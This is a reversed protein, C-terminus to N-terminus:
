RPTWISFAHCHLAHIEISFYVGLSNAAGTAAINCMSYSYVKDMIASEMDWDKPSDQVICLSDIWIYRCQLTRAVKVADRFTPPLSQIPIGSRLMYETSSTNQLLPVEGWCHSLTMYPTPLDRTGLEVLVVKDPDADLDLLRKQCYASDLASLTRDNCTDHNQLCDNYWESVQRMCEDSGTNMNLQKRQLLHEMNECNQVEFLERDKGGRTFPDHRENGTCVVFEIESRQEALDVVHGQFETFINQGLRHWQM